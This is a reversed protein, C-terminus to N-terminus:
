PDGVKIEDIIEVIARYTSVISGLLSLVLSFYALVRMGKPIETKCKLYFLAPLTLIIQPQILGGVLHFFIIVRNSTSALFAATLSLSGGIVVWKLNSVPADRFLLINLSNRLAWCVAPSSGILIVIVGATVVITFVNSRDYAELISVPGLSGAKDCYAIIGLANYMFFSCLVTAGGTYHARRITCDRLTELVPFLNLHCSYAMCNIGFSAIIVEWKSFDCYTFTGEPDFGFDSVDRILWYLAHIVLVTVFLTSLMSVKDLKSIERLFILPYVVITTILFIWFTDAGILIHRSGILRNILSGNWHCYIMFAGLQVLVISFHLIWHHRRGFSYGFLGTYDYQSVSFAVDIMFHFILSFGNNRAL